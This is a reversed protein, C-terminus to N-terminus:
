LNSDKRARWREMQYQQNKNKTRHFSVTKSLATYASHLCIATCNKTCCRSTQRGGLRYSDISNIIIAKELQFQHQLHASPWIHAACRSSACSGYKKIDLMEPSGMVVNVSLHLSHWCKSRTWFFNVRIGPKGLRTLRWITTFHPLLRYSTLSM